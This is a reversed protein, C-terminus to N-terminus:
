GIDRAVNAAVAIRNTRAKARQPVSEGPPPGAPVESPPLGGASPPVAGGTFLDSATTFDPEPVTREVGGPISQPDTQEAAKSWPVFMMKIATASAPQDNAPQLPAQLAGM